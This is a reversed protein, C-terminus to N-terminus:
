EAAKAQAVWDKVRELVNGTGVARKIKELTEGDETLDRIRGRLARILLREESSAGLVDDASPLTGAASLRAIEAEFVQCRLVLPRVLNGDDQDFIDLLEEYTYRREVSEYATARREM